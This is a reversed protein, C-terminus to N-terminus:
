LPHLFHLLVLQCNFLKYLIFNFTGCLYETYVENWVVTANPEM